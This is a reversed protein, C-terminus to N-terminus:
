AFFLFARGTLAPNLFNKGTGGFIEKGVVVGFIIGLAVQWLPTDPALTLPYLMGTVLFGENIEHKRITAFLLECLGGAIQTVLFIPVFYLMGHVFNDLLSYPNYGLGLLDLIQGRWWSPSESLGMAALAKNAQLGTNYQAMLIVPQLAIIVSFMMRKLDIADRVHASTRTVSPPTFLFTDLAEYLPYVKSLRGGQQFHPELRDLFSRLASIM